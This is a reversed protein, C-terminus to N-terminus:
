PYKEIWGIVTDLALGLNGVQCHNQAQEEKTFIRATISKAQTLAKVQMKHMKFPIFHDKVGTLILVDQKVMDSHLNQENLQFAADAADMPNKTNTIYMLNGISWTHIGDKKMKKLTLRNSFNRLHKFFLIMMKQALFNPFKTYDFGIGSAVVRKIRAEFAAARFCYWGGMSIGVWTVDDLAFIDLVAKAPKEWKYDMFHGYKKLAAGQGPGEFSIVEYGHNSFYKMWSYFEEIFSDFGGHM